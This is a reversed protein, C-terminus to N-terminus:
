PVGDWFTDGDLQGDMVPRGTGSHSCVYGTGALAAWACLLWTLVAANRFWCKTTM